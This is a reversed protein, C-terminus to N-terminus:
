YGQRKKRRANNKARMIAVDRKSVFRRNAKAERLVGSMQVMRQFRSLLAEQSEGERLTVELSVNKFKGSDCGPRNALGSM